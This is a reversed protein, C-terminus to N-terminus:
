QHFLSKIVQPKQLDLGTMFSQVLDAVAAQSVYKAFVLCLVRLKTSYHLGHFYANELRIQLNMYKFINEKNLVVKNDILLFTLSDHMCNKTQLYFDESDEKIKLFTNQTINELSSELLQKLDQDENKVEFCESKAESVEELGTPGIDEQKLSSDSNLNFKNNKLNLKIQMYHQYQSKFDSLKSLIESTKKRLIKCSDNIPLPSIQIIIREIKRKKVLSKVKGKDIDFSKPIINNSYKIRKSLCKATISQKPNTKKFLDDNRKGSLNQLSLLHNIKNKTPYYSLSSQNKLSKSTKTLKFVKINKILIDFRKYKTSLFIRTPKIFTDKFYEEDKVSIFFESLDGMFYNKRRNEFPRLIKKMPEDKTIKGQIPNKNSLLSKQNETIIPTDNTEKKYLENVKNECQYVNEQVKSKHSSFETLM